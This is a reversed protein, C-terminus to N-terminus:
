QASWAATPQISLQGDKTGAILVQRPQVGTEIGSREDSVLTALSVQHYYAKMSSFDQLQLVTHVTCDVSLNSM